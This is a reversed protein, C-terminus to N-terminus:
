ITYTFTTWLHRVGSPASMIIISTSNVYVGSCDKNNYGGVFIGQHDQVTFPLGSLTVGNPSMDNGSAFINLSITVTRGIKTYWAMQVSRGTGGLASANGVTWTGEEYDDLENAANNGGLRIGGDINVGTSITELKKSNDYYAQFPGDPQARFLTENDAENKFQVWSNCLFNLVGNDAMVWNENSQHYIKLDGADGISLRNGTTSGDPIIVAGSVEIGTSDTKLKWSNNYYLEVSGNLTCDIYLEGGTVTRLALSDSEIRLDNWTDKIYSYSGDHYIQLDSGTGLKIKGSDNPIELDNSAAVNGTVSIGGSTTEFKKSNDYFLEVDANPKVIIGEENGSPRVHFQGGLTKVFTNGTANTIYSSSGDHYLQLDDNNGCTLKSNDAGNLNGAWIPGSSGTKFKWVNDYYLDVSGDPTCKIMVEDGSHKRIETTGVSKIIVQDDGQVYLDGTVNNIVSDTGTHDIKLDAGAGFSANVNDAFSLDADLQEIHEAGVADDAIKAGTIADAAIKATTVNLDAIHATDISGDTYHESNIADDAIKAGTVADAALEGTGVSSNALQGQTITDDAIKAATVADNAIKATTINADLIDETKVEANKIGASSVQTLAM